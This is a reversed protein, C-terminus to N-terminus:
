PLVYRDFHSGLPVLSLWYAGVFSLLVRDALERRAIAVALGAAAVIVVPGLSDWLKGTFAFWSFSDHEFGLWGQRAHEHVDWWDSAAEGPHLLSSRLRSRSRWFRSRPRASCGTGGGGRSSSSRSM